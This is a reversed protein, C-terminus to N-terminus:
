QKNIQKITSLAVKLLIEAIDHRAAKVFDAICKMTEDM